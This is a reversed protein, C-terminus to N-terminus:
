LLSAQIIFTLRSRHGYVKCHFSRIVALPCRGNEWIYVATDAAVSLLYAFWWRSSGWSQLAARFQAQIDTTPLQAIAFEALSADGHVM